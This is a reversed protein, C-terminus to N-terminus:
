ELLSKISGRLDQSFPRYKTSYMFSFRFFTWTILPLALIIYNLICNLVAQWWPAPAKLEDESINQSGGTQPARLRVWCRPGKDSRERGQERLTALGPHESCFHWKGDGAGLGAPHAPGRTLTRVAPERAAVTCAARRQDPLASPRRTLNESAWLQGKWYSDETTESPPAGYGGLNTLRM